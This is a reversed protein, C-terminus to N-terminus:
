KNLKYNKPSNPSSNAKHLFNAYASFSATIFKPFCVEYPKRQPCSKYHCVMDHHSFSSKCSSPPPSTPHPVM